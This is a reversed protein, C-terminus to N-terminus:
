LSCLRQGDLIFVLGQARLMQEASQQALLVPEDGLQKLLHPGLRAVKGGGKGFLHTLQGMYCAGPPVGFLHIDRRLQVTRQRGGFFGSGGHLVFVNGHLMKHQAHHIRGVGGDLLHQALEAKILGAKQLHQRLHAAVLADGAVVGFAGIVHQGFVALVKHLQGTLLLQVGDDAAVGLDAVDDTDKRALCFIVRHEDALRAHAFCSDGLAQGQTDHAAIYRFVQLVALHEAKVHARQHGACFVAALKFFAELANQLFHFLALSLDDQKDVLQVGNHARAFRVAGHVRAIDELGHQRPALQVADAGRRQVLVPLVNFLVRRQLAPELRHHHIFGRYLVGDGNQAPQFLPVLHKVAHLDLVVREDCRCHERAPINSVAKQRIFGDVQHIFGAGHDARFHIGGRRLHIVQAPLDHLVLDLLRGQFLLGVLKGGLAKRVNLFLQGGHALFEAGHAGAPLVLFRGDALHLVQALLDLLYVALDGPGLTFIVQVASGLQFVATQGRQLLLQLLLLGARRRRFLIGSQQVVTHRLLLDGADHAAPCADGHRLEHFPLAFLQQM